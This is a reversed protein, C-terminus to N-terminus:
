NKKPPNLIKKLEEYGEFMGKARGQEAAAVNLKIGLLDMEKKDKQLDLLNLNQLYGSYADARQGLQNNKLTNNIYNNRNISEINAANIQLNRNNFDQMSADQRQAEAMSIENDAKLTAAYAQTDNVPTGTRNNLFNRFSAQNRNKLFGSRDTYTFPSNTILRNELNTDMRNVANLNTALGAVSRLQQQYPALKDLLNPNDRKEISLPEIKTKIKLKNVPLMKPAIPKISNPTYNDYPVVLGKSKVAYKMYDNFDPM